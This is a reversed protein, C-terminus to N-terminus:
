TSNSCRCPPSSMELASNSTIHKPSAKVGRCSSGLTARDISCIPFNESGTVAALQAASAPSDGDRKRCRNLSSVPM